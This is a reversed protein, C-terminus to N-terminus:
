DAEHIKTRYVESLNNNTHIWFRVIPPNNAFFDITVLGLEAASFITEKGTGVPTRKSGAGSIILPVGDKKLFQLNHEHGSTIITNGHESAAKILSERYGKYVPHDKDQISIYSNLRNFLLGTVPLPLLLTPHLQSLPFFHQNWTYHGGHNGYTLPPHHSALIITKDTNSQLINELKLELEKVSNIKCHYEPEASIEMNRLWWQSDIVVLLVNPALTRVIPGPCGDDPIFYTDPLQNKYKKNMSLFDEILEEQRNLGAKGFTYWDHNGPIFFVKGNFDLTTKAQSLIRYKGRGYDPHSTPPLGVPYLNDGLWLCASHVEEESLIDRLTNFFLPYENEPANGADGILYLRFSLDESPIYVDKWQDQDESYHLGYKACSTM